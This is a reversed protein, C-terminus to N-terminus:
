IQIFLKWWDKRYYFTIENRDNADHRAFHSITLIALLNKCNGMKM